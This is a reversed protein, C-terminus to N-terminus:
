TASYQHVLRFKLYEHLEYAVRGLNSKYVVFYEFFYETKM